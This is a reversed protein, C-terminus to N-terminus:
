SEKGEYIIDVILYASPNAAITDISSKEFKMNSIETEEQLDLEYIGTQGIIIPSAADNLYFKTGPLAQVGLQFIPFYSQFVEGTIFKVGSVAPQNKATDENYYRFQKVTNAM